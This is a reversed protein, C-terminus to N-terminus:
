DSSRAVAGTQLRANITAVYTSLREIQRQLTAFGSRTFTITYAGAPLGQM